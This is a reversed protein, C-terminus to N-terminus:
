QFAPFTLSSERKDTASNSCLECVEQCYGLKAHFIRPLTECALGRTAAVPEVSLLGDCVTFLWRYEICHQLCYQESSFSASLSREYARLDDAACVGLLSAAFM